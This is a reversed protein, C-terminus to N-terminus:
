CMNTCEVVVLCGCNRGQWLWAELDHCELADLAEVAPDTGGMEKSSLRRKISASGSTHKSDRSVNIVHWSKKLSYYLDQGKETHTSPFLPASQRALLTSLNTGSVAGHVMGKRPGSTAIKSSLPARNM